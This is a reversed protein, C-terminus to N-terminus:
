RRKSATRTRASLVTRGGDVTWVAGTVYTAEPHVLFSATPSTRGRGKEPATDETMHIDGFNMLMM